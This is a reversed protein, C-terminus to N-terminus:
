PSHNVAPAVTMTRLAAVVDKEVFEQRCHDGWIEDLTPPTM